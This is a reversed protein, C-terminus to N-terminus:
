VKLAILEGPLEDFVQIGENRDSAMKALFDADINEERLVHRLGECNLMLCQASEWITITALFESEM